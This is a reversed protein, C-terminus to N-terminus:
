FYFHLMFQVCIAAAPAPAEAASWLNVVTKAITERSAGASAAAEAAADSDIEHKM